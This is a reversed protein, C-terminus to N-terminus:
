QGAVLTISAPWCPIPRLMSTLQLLLPWYLSRRQLHHVLSKTLWIPGRKQLIKYYVTGSYGCCRLTRTSAPWGSTTSPVMSNGTGGSAEPSDIRTPFTATATKTAPMKTVEGKKIGNAMARFPGIGKEIVDRRLAPLCQNSAACDRPIALRRQCFICKGDCFNCKAYARRHTAFSSVRVRGIVYRCIKFETIRRRHM